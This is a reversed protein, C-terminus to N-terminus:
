IRYIGNKKFQEEEYEFSYTIETARKILKGNWYKTNNPAKGSNVVFYRRIDENTRRIRGLIQIRFAISYHFTTSIGFILTKINIGEKLRANCGFVGIADSKDINSIDIKECNKIIWEENIDKHFNNSSLIFCGKTSERIIVIKRNLKKDIFYKIIIKACEISEKVEECVCLFKHNKDFSELRPLDNIGECVKKIVQRYTLGYWYEDLEGKNKAKDRFDYVYVSRAVIADSKLIIPNGFISSLLLGDQSDNKPYTASLGCMYIYHNFLKYINFCKSFKDGCMSHIEDFIILNVNNIIDKIFSDKSLENSELKNILYQPSIIYIQYNKKDKIYKNSSKGSSQILINLEPWIENIEKLWQEKISTRCSIILTKLSLYHIIQLGMLTKGAACPASINIFQFREFLKNDLKRQLTQQPINMTIKKAEYPNDLKLQKEIIIQNEILKLYPVILSDITLYSRWVSRSYSKIIHSNSKLHSNSNFAKILEIKYEKSDNKTIEILKIIDM